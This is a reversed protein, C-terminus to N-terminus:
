AVLPASQQWSAHVKLHAIRQRWAVGGGGGGGGGVQEMLTWGGVVSLVGDVGEVRDPARVGTVGRTGTVALDRDLADDPVALVRPRAAGGRVVGAHHLARPSCMFCTARLVM